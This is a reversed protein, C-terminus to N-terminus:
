REGPALNPTAALRALAPAIEVGLPVARAAVVQDRHRVSVQGGVFVPVRAAAVLAALGGDLVGPAPELSGSVVIAASHSRRAALPLEALPMDAGLLVTRYGREHAALAFLLLGIEHQEGPLCAALLLPGSEIRARHHFRAGLKNRLYVGFFHEEAVSGEARQWREGLEELLPLLVKQTSLEAPHTALVENYVDELANEDFRAIAAIMRDRYGAWPGEARAAAADGGNGRLAGRVQSIALGRELLAVVRHIEAVDHPTYLRQGSESRAPRILGYRREWARLTVPKVGTLSAITRIPYREGPEAAPRASQVRKM